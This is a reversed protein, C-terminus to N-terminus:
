DIAKSKPVSFEPLKRPDDPPDEPRKEPAEGRVMGMFVKGLRRSPNRFTEYSVHRHPQAPDFGIGWLPHIENPLLSYRVDGLANPSEPHVSVWGASFWDFRRIDNALTSDQPIAIVSPEFKAVSEGEYVRQGGFFGARVADTYFRGEHEYLSRWLVINLITPKVEARLAVHGRAEILEAQIDRARERQVVGLLLYCLGAVLGVRAWKARKSRLALAMGVLWALTPVPDIIGVNNWAVRADSFPWLLQTGYSTCADLLGHTAWGLTSFVIMWWISVRRRTILWLALGVLAGGVPIFILSHTFHRHYELAFLPDHSSRIFVDLDPAMGGLLGAVAAMKMQRADAASQAAAAGLVGQTLPDM